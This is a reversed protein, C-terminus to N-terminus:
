CPIMYLGAGYPDGSNYHTIAVQRESPNSYRQPKHGPHKNLFGFPLKSEYFLPPKFKPVAPHTKAERRITPQKTKYREFSLQNYPALVKHTTLDAVKVSMM